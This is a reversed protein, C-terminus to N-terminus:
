GAGGALMVRQSKPDMVAMVGAERDFVLVAGPTSLLQRFVGETPTDMCARASFAAEQLAVGTQRDANMVAVFGEDPTGEPHSLALVGRRKMTALAPRVNNDLALASKIDASRLDYAAATCEGTSNFYTNDGLWFWRELLQRAGAEDMRACAALVALGLLVGLRLARPM